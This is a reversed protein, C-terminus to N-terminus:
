KLKDVTEKGIITNMKKLQFTYNVKSYVRGCEIGIDHVM